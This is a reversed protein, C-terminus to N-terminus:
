RRARLFRARGALDPLVAVEGYGAREAERALVHVNTPDLELLLWGGAALAGAAEALLPRAVALGDAGAYLATEAEWALEPPAAERYAEPLYPPNSVILDLDWLGATLPAHLFTVALGLRRANARALELAAESVESAYVDLEPRAQKLALAIAGGGTGVDLVRAPGSEPLRELALEVLRETEPRPVLVGPRVELELGCFVATGLILQLPEGAARRALAEELLREQAPELAARAERWFRAGQAGTAHELLQRAEAEAQRSPFGAEELRARAYRLAQARTM